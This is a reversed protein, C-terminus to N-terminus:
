VNGCGCGNFGGFAYPYGFPYGANFTAQSPYRVVGSLANQLELQSVKGQLASIKDSCLADLIKQSQAVVTSNISATNQADLYRNELLLQKNECCCTAQQAAMSALRDKIDANGSTITTGLTSGLTCLDRALNSFGNSINSNTSTFDMCTQRQNAAAELINTQLSNSMEDAGVNGVFGGRNGGWAGGFGGNFLAALVILGFIWAGSNMGTGDGGMNMVPTIGTDM